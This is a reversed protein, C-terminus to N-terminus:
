EDADRGTLVAEIRALREEMAALRAELDGNGAAGRLIRGLPAVVREEIWRRHTETADVIGAEIRHAEDASLDGREVLVALM